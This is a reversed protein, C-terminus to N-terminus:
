LILKKLGDSSILPILDVHPVNDTSPSLSTSYNLFRVRYNQKTLM